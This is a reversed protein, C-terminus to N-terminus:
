KIIGGGLVGGGKDYFVAAQGPTIARQSKKFEISVQAKNGKKIIANVAPHGYRIRIKAKLPFSPPEIIWSIKDVRMDRRFLNRTKNTIILQNKRCDKEQVYYPGQGGLEIGKRQGITYLPLGFHEGLFKGKDDVMKGKKLSINNKLYDSLKESVFCIDHSEPRNYSPLQMKQAMKKVETKLLDGLPLIIKSLQEQNLGYLFYSQDKTKDKAEFLRYLCDEKVEFKSSQVKFKKIRAYHGTAIFDIKMKKALQNLNEFKIQPNCVCCPNPTRGFQFEKLTYDIVQQKFDSTLDIMKFKIGLIEAVMTAAKEDARSKLNNFFRFFCGSVEYGQKKLLAAAVSSDVGGSLAVLIKKRKNKEM